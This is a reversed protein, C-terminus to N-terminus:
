QPWSYVSFFRIYAWLASGSLVAIRSFSSHTRAVRAAPLGVTGDVMPSSHFVLGKMRQLSAFRSAYVPSDSATFHRPTIRARLLAQRGHRGGGRGGGGRDRSQLMCERRNHFEKENPLVFKWYGEFQVPGSELVSYPGPHM